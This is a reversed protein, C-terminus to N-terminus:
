LILVTLFPHSHWRMFSQSEAYGASEILSVVRMGPKYHKVDKGIETIIGAVEAGPM